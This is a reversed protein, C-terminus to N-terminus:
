SRTEQSISYRRRASEQAEAENRRASWWNWLLVLTTLGYASWVFGAYGGMAIFKQLDM